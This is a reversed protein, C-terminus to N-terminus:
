KGLSFDARERSLNPNYYPDRELSAGWRERMVVAAAGDSNADPSAPVRRYLKAFPTYVILYGARRLKLCLDVDYYAAPLREADFGGVELFVDRRTLLCAGSVASCNRTVQLQRNVGPHEAPLGRFAPAAIEGVGLVMGGHEITDDPFLLRAGVAGVEPRQVHEAMVSLWDSEIAEIEDSLFLLWPSETQAVAFNNLASLNAAGDYNLRRHKFDPLNTKVVQHNSEVLVIEYNPYNTKSTLSELCRVLRDSDSGAPLIISIKKEEILDRKIRFAHTRWDVTTHGREGRRALHADLALRAAELVKPKRRIDDAVSNATRRWHYLVRAIHHIHPTCAVARLYLDYDQASEFEPRFAGLKEVLERRITAFHGIYNYSLFFDPSWDPKLLPAAFGEDTLKDEDSYILDAEPYQQLLKATQFLTDPELVDDHDLLGIWEGGAQALGYNSAACIGQHPLTSLRIRQDRAALTPLAPLLDPDSSGDDVLLLEWKEYAQDLVSQIAEELWSVPTNFVPTIISILPQHSFKRADERFGAAQAASVRHRNLWEQYEAAAASPQKLQSPPRIQKRVERFLKQPLRYPALLVQGVKREPSKRLAQKEQKLQKIERKAEKLKLVKEELAAIHRDADELESIRTRLTRELIHVEEALRAAKRTLRIAGADLERLDCEYDPVFGDRGFRGVLLPRSESVAAGAAPLLLIDDTLGALKEVIREDNEKLESPYFWIALDFEEARGNQALASELEAGSACVVPRLAMESFSADAGTAGLILLRGPAFKQAIIRELDPRISSLPAQLVAVNYQNFRPAPLNVSRSV